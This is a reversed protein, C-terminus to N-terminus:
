HCFSASELPMRDKVASLLIIHFYFLLQLNKYLHGEDDQPLNRTSRSQLNNLCKITPIRCPIVMLREQKLQGVHSKKFSLQETHEKLGSYM